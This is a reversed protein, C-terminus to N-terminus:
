LDHDEIYPREFGSNSVYNVVRYTADPYIKKVISWAWAWSLYTLGNKQEVKSSCDIASLVDRTTKDKIAKKIEEYPMSLYNIEKKM